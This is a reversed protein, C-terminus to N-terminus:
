LPTGDRRGRGSQDPTECRLKAIRRFSVLLAAHFPFTAVEAAIMKDWHRLNVIQGIQILLQQAMPRPHPHISM